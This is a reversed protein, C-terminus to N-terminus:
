PSGPFNQQKIAKLLPRARSVRKKGAPEGLVLPLVGVAAAAAELSEATEQQRM